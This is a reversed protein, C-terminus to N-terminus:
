KERGGRDVSKKSIWGIYEKEDLTYKVQYWYPVDDNLIELEESYKVEIIIESRPNSDARIYASEQLVYAINRTGAICQVAPIMAKEMLFEGGYQILLSLMIQLVVWTIFHNTKLDQITAPNLKIQEAEQASKEAVEGSTYSKGKYVLSGDSNIQVDNNDINANITKEWNIRAALDVLFKSNEETIVNNLFSINNTMQSMTMSDQMTNFYDQSISSTVLRLTKSMNELLANTRNLERLARNEEAVIGAAGTLGVHASQTLMTLREQTDLLSRVNNFGSAKLALENVSRIKSEMETQRKLLETLKSNM